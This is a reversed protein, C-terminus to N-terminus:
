LGFSSVLNAFEESNSFGNVVTERSEGKQLRGLWDNYGNPDKAADRDFYTKYMTVVFEENSLHRNNFEDSFVIGWVVDAPSSGGSLIRGCWDNIGAEDLSVRNLAIYYVRSVFETLKINQDRPQSLTVSGQQINYKECLDKFEDGEAFGHYVYERSAGNYLDKMWGEFGGQDAERDFMARYLRNVFEEDSLEKNTFEKSFIVGQMVEAGKAEGSILRNTWDELGDPEAERELAVLYIRKVFNEVQERNGNDPTDPKDPVDPAVAGGDKLSYNVPAQVCVVNGLYDQTYLIVNAPDTDAYEVTFTGAGDVTGGIKAGNIVAGSGYVSFNGSAVAKTGTIETVTLTNMKINGNDNEILYAVRTFKEGSINVQNGNGNVTDGKQAYIGYLGFNSIINNTATLTSGGTVSIGGNDDDQTNQYIKNNDAVVASGIIALGLDGSDVITNGNMSANAGEIDVGRGKSGIITCNEISGSVRGEKSGDFTIGNAASGSIQNEKLDAQAGRSVSIGMRGSGSIKNNTVAVNKSQYSVQIGHNNSGSVTNDSVTINESRNVIIGNGVNAQTGKTDQITNGSIITGNSNIDVVLGEGNSGERVANGLLKNGSIESGQDNAVRIGIFGSESLSNDKIKHHGGGESEIGISHSNQISVGIISVYQANEIKIGNNASNTIATDGEVRTNDAKILLTPLNPNQSDMLKCSRITNDSGGEILVSAGRITCDEFVVNESDRIISIWDGNGNVVANKVTVNSAGSVDLFSNGGAEWTGGNITVNVPRISENDSVLLAVDSRTNRITAGEANIVIDSYLRVFREVTFDSGPTVTVTLTEDLDKAEEVANLFEGATSVTVEKAQVAMGATLTLAFVGGALKLVNKLLKDRMKM